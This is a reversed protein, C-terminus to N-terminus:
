LYRDEGEGNVGFRKMVLERVTKSIHLIRSSSCHIYRAPDTGHYDKFRHMPSFYATQPVNQLARVFLTYNLPNRRVGQVTIGIAKTRINSNRLRPLVVLEDFITGAVWLPHSSVHQETTPM